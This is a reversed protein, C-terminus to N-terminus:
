LPHADRIVVSPSAFRDSLDAPHDFSRMIWRETM